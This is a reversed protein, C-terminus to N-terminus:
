SVDGAGPTWFKALNEAVAQHEPAKLEPDREFLLQAERRAKEITKMDSLKAMRLGALGSQRTGLFDGPGRLDLDKEALVFGDQSQEMALLREDARPNIADSVLLCTSAHEGRGVRGRFQHLQALGFRNAGEILIVTANPVDVGVEVVSTSVLLHDAGAHFRTMVEDKEDPRMRGHLLGLKFEPFVEKQLRAHEDVAAKAEIKESEEVLPFIIFAQRGKQIQSRIFAFGRERENSHLIHTTIPQRGPPMEDLVSLDLDGYVTLALTRPIPTATMVLLHPSRGEATGKGRLAARQAVGFRHQEDVVALGLNAFEVPAEILAHTGIVVKVTGSRLGAYIGEKESAPTSGQLLRIASSQGSVVSSQDSFVPTLLSSVTRYHQEALISTPAMLAAQAGAQVAVAMAAAAVATKGSGVDGQLLRNMPVDRGMDARVEALALTQAHTLAYPLTSVFSVLWDDLVTLPTGNAAQWEKRQRLVGLQLLLLEDFALRHKAAELTAESDPFHIHALAEGYSMLGARQVMEAPLPDVQKRAWYQVVQASIKRLGRQLVGSTLRYVPVIRGTNLLERDLYEWEDPVLTLRGLYQDVRGSVVVQKGATLQEALWPQNFFTVELMGTADSLVVKLMTAQGGRIRRQHAEGITGIVSCEEGYELRNITKMKSYNDYRRPFYLLIDRLTTLGLRQLKSATEPGVGNLVTVSADVGAAINLPIAAKLPQPGSPRRPRPTVPEEDLYTRETRRPRQAQPQPRPPQPKERKRDVAQRSVSPVSPISAVSSPEPSAAPAPAPEISEPPAVPKPSPQTSEIPPSPPPPPPTVIRGLDPSPTQIRPPTRPREPVPPRSAPAPVPRPPPPASARPEASPGPSKSPGAERVMALMAQIATPRESASLDPYARIRAVIGDVFAPDFGARRANPEWFGLMKPLGGIVAKNPYGDKIELDLIKKLHELSPHM